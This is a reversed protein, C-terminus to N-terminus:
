MVAEGAGAEREPRRGQWFGRGYSVVIEEGKAIGAKGAKGAGGRKRGEGMVFVGIRREVLGKSGPVELWVDRFEANPGAARVGRYDNIFRAESGMQAADLALGGDERSLSLDYDSAEDTDVAAGTHLRGQYLLIFSGPALSRTALLGYQGHAPHTPSAIHAIRVLPCPTPAAAIVPDTSADRPQRLQSLHTATIRASHVPATLYTIQPPWNKPVRKTPRTTM